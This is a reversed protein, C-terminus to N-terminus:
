ECRSDDSTSELRTRGAINIVIAYKATAGHCLTLTGNLSHTMGNSKFAIHNQNRFNSWNWSYPPSIPLTRLAIESEDLRGSQNSDIFVVLQNQWRNSCADINDCLSVTTRRTVAEIRSFHLAALMDDVYAKEQAQQVHSSFGPIVITMFIGLIVLSILLEVLSYARQRNQIM